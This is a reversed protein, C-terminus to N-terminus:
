PMETPLESSKLKMVIGGTNKYVKKLLRKDLQEIDQTVKVGEAFVENVIM